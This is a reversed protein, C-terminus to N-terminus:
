EPRRKGDSRNRVTGLTWTWNGQTKKKMVAVRMYPKMAQGTKMIKKPDVGHLAHKNTTSIIFVSHDIEKILGKLHHEPFYSIQHEGAIEFFDREVNYEEDNSPRYSSIVHGGARWIAKRIELFLPKAIEEAVLYVTEDKKIGKGSNLAFRVLVAAYKELIEKSPKYHSM